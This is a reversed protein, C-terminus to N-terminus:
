AQNNCVVDSNLTRARPIVGLIPRPGLKRGQPFASSRVDVRRREAGPVATVKPELDKSLQMILDCARWRVVGHDSGRRARGSALLRRAQVADKAPQALRRVEGATYDTRVPIAYGM